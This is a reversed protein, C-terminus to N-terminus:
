DESPQINQAVQLKWESSWTAEVSAQSVGPQLLRSRSLTGKGERSFFGSIQLLASRPSTHCVTPKTAASSTSGPMPMWGGVREECRWKGECHELSVSEQLLCCLKVLSTFGRVPSDNWTSQFHVCSAFTLGSIYFM